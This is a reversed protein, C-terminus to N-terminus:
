NENEFEQSYTSTYYQLQSYTKHKDVRLELLSLQANLQM